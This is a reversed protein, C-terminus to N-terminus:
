LKEVYLVVSLHPLRIILTSSEPDLTLTPSRALHFVRSECRRDGGLLM